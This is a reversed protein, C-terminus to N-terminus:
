RGYSIRHKIQRELDYPADITMSKGEFDRLMRVIHHVDKNRLDVFKVYEPNGKLCIVAWSEDRTVASNVHIDTGIQLLDHIRNLRDIEASQNTIRRSLNNVQKQLEDDVGLWKRLAQKFKNMMM